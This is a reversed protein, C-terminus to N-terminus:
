NIEAKNRRALSLKMGGIMKCGKDNKSLSIERGIYNEPVNECGKYKEPIDKCGKYERM